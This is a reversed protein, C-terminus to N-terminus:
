LVRRHFLQRLLKDSSVDLCTVFATKFIQVQDPGLELEKNGTTKLYKTQGDKGFNAVTIRHVSVYSFFSISSIKKASSSIREGRFLTGSYFLGSAVSASRDSM